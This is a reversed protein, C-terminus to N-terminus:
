VYSSCKSAVFLSGVELADGHMEEDQGSICYQHLVTALLLLRAGKAAEQKDGSVQWWVSM